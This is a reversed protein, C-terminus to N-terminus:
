RLGEQYGAYMSGAIAIRYIPWLLSCPANVRELRGAVAILTAQSAPTGAFRKLWKKVIVPLHDDPWAPPRNAVIIASWPHDTGYRREILPATALYLRARRCYDGISMGAWDNHQFTLGPDLVLRHGSRIARIALDADELAAKTFEEEYGGLERLARKPVLAIGSAFWTVETIPEDIPVPPM